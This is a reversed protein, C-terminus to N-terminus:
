FFRFSIYLCNPQNNWWEKAQFIKYINLKEVKVIAEEWNNKTIIFWTVDQLTIQQPLPPQYIEIPIEETIVKVPPPPTFDVTPLISCGSSLIISLASAKLTMRKM